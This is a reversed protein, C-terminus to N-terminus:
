ISSGCAGECAATCVSRGLERYSLRHTSDRRSGTMKMGFKKHWYRIETTERHVRKEAHRRASPDNSSILHGLQAMLCMPHTKMEYLPANKDIIGKSIVRHGLLCFETNDENEM